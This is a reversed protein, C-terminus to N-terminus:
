GVEALFFGAFQNPARPRHRWGCILNRIPLANDPRSPARPQNCQGTRHCPRYLQRVKMQQQPTPIGGVILTDVMWTKTAQAVLSTLASGEDRCAAKAKAQVHAPARLARGEDRRATEAQQACAAEERHLQKALAMVCAAANRQRWDKAEDALVKTCAAAVHQRREKAEDALTKAALATSRKAEALVRARQACEAGEVEQRADNAVDHACTAEDAQLQQEALVAQAQCDAKAKARRNAAAFASACKAEDHGTAEAPMRPREAETKAWAPAPAHLASGKKRWAVEAQSHCTGTWFRQQDATARQDWDRLLMDVASRTWRESARLWTDLHCALAALRPKDAFDPDEAIDKNSGFKDDDGDANNHSNKKSIM